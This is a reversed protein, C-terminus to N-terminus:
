HPLLRASKNLNEFLIFNLSYFERRKKIIKFHWSGKFIKLFFFFFVYFM